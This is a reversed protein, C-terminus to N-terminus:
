LRAAIDFEESVRSLLEMSQWSDLGLDERLRDSGQIEAPPTKTLEAIVHQQLRPGAPPHSGDVGDANEEAAAGCM